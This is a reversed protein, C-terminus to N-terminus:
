GRRRTWTWRAWPWVAIGSVIFGLPGRHAVVQWLAAGFAGAWGTAQMEFRLQDLSKPAAAIIADATFTTVRGIGESLNDGGGPAPMSAAAAMPPAIIRVSASDIGVGSDSATVRASGSDRWEWTDGAM